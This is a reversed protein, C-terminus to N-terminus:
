NAKKKVRKSSRTGNTYQKQKKYSKGTYVHSEYIAPVANIRASKHHVIVMKGERLLGQVRYQDRSEDECVDVFLFFSPKMGLFAKNMKKNYRELANNTRNRLVYFYEADKMHINWTHMFQKDSCWYSIFYKWFEMWKNGDEKLVFEDLNSRVFHIGKTLIEDIPIICLMDLSNDDLTYEIIDAHLELNEMKRRIAQKFHFLCGNVKIRGSQFKKRVASHLGKEFDCTVTTPELKWNTSVCVFHLAQEYEFATKGQLLIYFIPVYSDTQGNYVMVILCQYFPFPCVKFTGDIYIQVNGNLLGILRPNAFGVMRSRKGDKPDTLLCNFQLFWRDSDKMMSVEDTELKVFMDTGYERHRTNKVIAKVQVDNIGSWVPYKASVELELKKWIDLASLAMFEIAMGEARGKMFDNVRVCTNKKASAYQAEKKLHAVCKESHLDSVVVVSGSPIIVRVRASCKCSRVHRCWYLANTADVNVKKRTFPFGDHVLTPPLGFYYAAEIRKSVTKKMRDKAGDNEINEKNCDMGDSM